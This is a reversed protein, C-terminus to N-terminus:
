GGEALRLKESRGLCKFLSQQTVPTVYCEGDIIRAHQDDWITAAFDWGILHAKNDCDGLLRRLKRTVVCHFHSLARLDSEGTVALLDRAAVRHGKRAFVKLRQRHVDALGRVLRPGMAPRLDVPTRWLDANAENAVPLNGTTRRRASQNGPASVPLRVINSMSVDVEKRKRNSGNMPDGHSRQSVRVSRPVIRQSFAVLRSM